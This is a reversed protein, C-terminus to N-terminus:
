TYYQSFGEVKGFTLQKTKEWVKGEQLDGM